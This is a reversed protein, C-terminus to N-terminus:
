LYNNVLEYCRNKTSEALSMGYAVNEETGGKYVNAADLAKQDRENIWALEEKQLADMKDKSLTQKLTGYIENLAKDWRECEESAAYKAETTNGNYYSDLDSLGSQINSLENLYYTKYDTSNNNSTSAAVTNNSSSNQNKTSSTNSTTNKTDTNDADKNLNTNEKKNNENKSVTSATKKNETGNNASSTKSTSCATMTGVVLILLLSCLINKIKM